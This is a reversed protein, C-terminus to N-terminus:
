KGEMTVTFPASGSGALGGVTGSFTLKGPGKKQTYAVHTVDSISHGAISWSGAASGTLSVSASKASGSLTAQNGDITMAGTLTAETKSVSSQSADVVLAPLAKDFHIQTGDDFGYNVSLTGSPTGSQYSVSTRSTSMPVATGALTVTASSASVHFSGDTDPTFDGDVQVSGLGYDMNGTLHCVADKTGLRYDCSLATYALKEHGVHLIGAADASFVYKDGSQSYAGTVTVGSGAVKLAGRIRFLSDSKSLVGTANELVPGNSGLRGFTLPATIQTYTVDALDQLLQRSRGPATKLETAFSDSWATLSPKSPLTWTIKRCGDSLQATGDLTVSQVHIRASGSGTCTNPATITLTVDASNSDQTATASAKAYAKKGDWYLEVNAYPLGDLVKEFVGKAASKLLGASAQEVVVPNNLLTVVGGLSLGFKGAVQTLQLSVSTLAFKGLKMSQNELLQVPPPTDAALDVTLTRAPHKLTTVGRLQATTGDWSLELGVASVLEAAIPNTDVEARLVYAKRKPVYVGEVQLTDGFVTLKGKVSLSPKGAEQLIWVSAKDLVFDGWHLTQAELIQLPAPQAAVARDFTFSLSDLGMHGIRDLAGHVQGPATLALDKVSQPLVIRAHQHTAQLDIDIGLTDPGLEIGTGVVFRPPSGDALVSIDVDGGDFGVRGIKFGHVNGSVQVGAKTVKFLVRGLDLKGCSLQGSGAVGETEFGLYADGAGPTAVYLSDHKMEADCLGSLSLTQPPADWPTWQGAEIALVLNGLNVLDSLALSSLGGLFGVYMPHAEYGTYEIGVKGGLTVSKADDRRGLYATGRGGISYTNDASIGIKGAVNELAFPIRYADITSDGYSSAPYSDLRWTGLMKGGLAMAISMDTLQAMFAGELVIDTPMFQDNMEFQTEVGFELSAPVWEVFFGVAAGDVVSDVLKRDTLYLPLNWAQLKADLRLGLHKDAKKGPIKLGTRWGVSGVLSLQSDIGLNQYYEYLAPFDQPMMTAILSLGQPYHIKDQRWASYIRNYPVQMVPDLESITLDQQASTLIVAAGEVKGDGPDFKEFPKSVGTAKVADEALAALEKLRIPIDGFDFLMSFATPKMMEFLYVDVEHNAGALQADLITFVMPIPKRGVPIIIEPHRITSKEVYDLFPVDAGARALVGAVDGVTIQEQIRVVIYEHTKTKGGPLAPRWKWLSVIADYDSGGLAVRADMSFRMDAERRSLPVSADAPKHHRFTVSLADDDVTAKITVKLGLHSLHWDKALEATTQGDGEQIGTLSLDQLIATSSFLKTLTPETLDVGQGHVASSWCILSGVLLGQIRCSNM